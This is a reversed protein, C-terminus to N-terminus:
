RAAVRALQPPVFQALSPELEVAAAFSRAAEAAKHQRALEKGLNFHAASQTPDLAIAQRLDAEVAASDRLVRHAWALKMHWDATDVLGYRSCSALHLVATEALSREDSSYTSHLRPFQLAALAATARRQHYQVFLSQAVLLYLGATAAILGLGVRSYRQAHKLAVGRVVVTPRRLVRASLVGLYAVLVGATLALLLPVADYLRHVAFYTVAFIALLAAEESRSFASRTLGARNLATLAPRGFRYALVGRPCASVCEGCRMCGSNAVMALRQVEDHVRVGTTCAATCRACGDCDGTLRIRGLAVGDALRFLAGYPCVYKCFSLAGLAYVMVLGGILIAAVAEVPGPLDAWLQASTLALRPTPFPEGLWARELLPRLYITFAAFLPILMLVRSRVLTPKVGLRGLLFRCLEQLALMHCGWACFIRGFLVTTV